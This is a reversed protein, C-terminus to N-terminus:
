EEKEKVAKGGKWPLSIGMEYLFVFFVDFFSLFNARIFFFNYNQATKSLASRSLLISLFLHTTIVFCM